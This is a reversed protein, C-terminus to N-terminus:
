SEMNICLSCIWTLYIFKKYIPYNVSSEDEDFIFPSLRDFLWDNKIFIVSRREFTNIYDFLLLINSMNLPDILM